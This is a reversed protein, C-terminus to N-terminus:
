RITGDKIQSLTIDGGTNEWVDLAATQQAATPEGGRYAIWWMRINAMRADTIQDAPSAGNKGWFMSDDGTLQTPSLAPVAPAPTPGVDTETDLDTPAPMGPVTGIGTQEIPAPDNAGGEALWLEVGYPLGMPDLADRWSRNVYIYGRDLGGPKYGKGIFTSAVSRLDGSLQDWSRGSPNIEADWGVIRAGAPLHNFFQQVQATLDQSPDWFWYAGVLLGADGAARFDQAFFPNLYNLSGGLKGGLKIVAFEKGSAKVESWNIAKGQPHQYSAVDIGQETM